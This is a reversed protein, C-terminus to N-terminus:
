RIRLFRLLRNLASDEPEEAEQQNDTNQDDSQNEHIISEIQEEGHWVELEFGEQEANFEANYDIGITVDACVQDSTSNDYTDINIRYTNDDLKETQYELAYCPTPAWITGTFEIGSETHNVDNVRDSANSSSQNEVEVTVNYDEGTESQEQAIIGGILFMTASLLILVTSLLKMYM